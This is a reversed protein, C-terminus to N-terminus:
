LPPQNFASAYYTKAPAGPYAAAIAAAVAILQDLSGDNYVTVDLMAMVAEVQQGKGHREAQENAKFQEFSINDGPRNRAQSRMFRTQVPVDIGVAIGHHRHIFEAEVPHRLGPYLLVQTAPALSDLAYELWVDYGHAAMVESAVRQLVGRDAPDGLKHDRVYQRVLDGSSVIVAAFGRHNFQDALLRAFTDKGAGPYGTVGVITPAAQSPTNM